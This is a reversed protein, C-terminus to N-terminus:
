EEATLTSRKTFTVDFDGPFRVLGYKDETVHGSLDIDFKQVLASLFIFIQMESLIKGLCIRTGAFYCM